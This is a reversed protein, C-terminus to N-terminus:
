LAPPHKSRWRLPRRRALPLRFPTRIMQMRRFYRIRFFFSIFLRQSPKHATVLIRTNGRFPCKGQVTATTSRRVTKRGSRCSARRSEEKAATRGAPLRHAGCYSGGNRVRADKRNAATMSAHTTACMRRRSGARRARPEHRRENVSNERVGNTGSRAHPQVRGDFMFRVRTVSSNVIGSGSGQGQVVRGANEGFAPREVQCRAACTGGVSSCTSARSTVRPCAQDVAGRKLCRSDPPIVM